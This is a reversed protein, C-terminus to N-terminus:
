SIHYLWVIRPLAVMVDPWDGDEVFAAIQCIAGNRQGPVIAVSGADYVQPTDTMLQWGDDISGSAPGTAQEYENMVRFYLSVGAPLDGAHYVSRNRIVGGGGAWEAGIYLYTSRPWSWGGALVGPGAGLPDDDQDFYFLSGDVPRRSVDESAGMSVHASIDARSAPPSTAATRGGLLIAM